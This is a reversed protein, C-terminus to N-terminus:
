INVLSVMPHNNITKTEHGFAPAQSILPSDRALEGEMRRGRVLKSFSSIPLQMRQIISPLIALSRAPPSTQHIWIIGKRSSSLVPYALTFFHVEPQSYNWRYAPYLFYSIFLEGM